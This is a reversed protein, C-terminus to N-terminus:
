RCVLQHSTFDNSSPQVINFASHIMCSFRKKQQKTFKIYFTFYMIIMIVFILEEVFSSRHFYIYAKVEDQTEQRSILTISPFVGPIIIM